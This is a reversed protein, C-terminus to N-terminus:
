HLRGYLGDLSTCIISCSSGFLLEASALDLRREDGIVALVAAKDMLARSFPEHSRKRGLPLRGFPV